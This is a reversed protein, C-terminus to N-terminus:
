TATAAAKPLTFYIAAGQGPAAEAWVRGGHRAVIREVMALGIGLGPFEAVTHLRQFPKFLKDAFAM